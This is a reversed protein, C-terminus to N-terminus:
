SLHGKGLNKRLRNIMQAYSSVSKNSYINYGVVKSVNNILNILETISNKPDSFYVIM